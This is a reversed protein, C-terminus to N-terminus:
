RIRWGDVTYREVLLDDVSWLKRGQGRTETEVGQGGAEKQKGRKGSALLGPLDMCSSSPPSPPKRTEMWDKAEDEADRDSDYEPVPSVKPMNLRLPRLLTPNRDAKPEVWPLQLMSEVGRLLTEPEKGWIKALLRSRKVM